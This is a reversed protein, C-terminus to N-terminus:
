LAFMLMIGIVKNIHEEKVGQAILYTKINYSLSQNKDSTVKDIYDKITKPQRSGHIYGFNSFLYDRYLDEKSVGLLGNVLFAVVGTRDTGISCHFLIPYNDENALIEFLAPLVERNLQLYNGGSKMPFSIYNVGDIVSSTIGGQEINGDSDPEIDRLDLETKIGLKKLEEIGKQSIIIEGTDDATLKSSRILMGQKVISGGADYGGIDRVNTLGDIYLNRLGEITTFDDKAEGNVDWEYTTNSFLNYVDLENTTTTYTLSKSSGKVKITITYSSASGDWELHIPLPISLEENGKAYLTANEPDGTLYKTQLETHFNAKTPDVETHGCGVAFAVLVLLITLLLKKM